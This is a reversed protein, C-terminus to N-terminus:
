MSLRDDVAAIGARACHEDEVGGPAGSIGVGGVIAGASEVPVGGGVFVMGPLHRVASNAQGAQTLASLAETPARFSVATRAKGVATEPTHHGALSDRLVVQTVGFRDTVAVAVQFGRERCAKLAGQALALALEPTMSRFAVFDEGRAAPTIALLAALGLCTRRLTM